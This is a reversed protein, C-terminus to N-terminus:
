LFTMSIEFASKAVSCNSSMWTPLSPLLKIIVTVSLGDMAEIFIEPLWAKFVSCNSSLKVFIPM